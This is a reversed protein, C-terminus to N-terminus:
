HLPAFSIKEAYAWGSIAKSAAPLLNSLGYEEKRGIDLIKQMMKRTKYSENEIESVVNKDVEIGQIIIELAKICSDTWSVIGKLIIELIRKKM